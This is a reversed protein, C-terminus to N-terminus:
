LLVLLVLLFLKKAHAHSVQFQVESFTMYFTIGFTIVLLVSLVIVKLFTVFIRGFMLVYIGISPFKACIVILGIWALLIAIVGVQWQWEQPCLCTSRFASVFIISLIYLTMEIWNVWSSIYDMLDYCLQLAELLFRFVVSLIVIVAAAFM